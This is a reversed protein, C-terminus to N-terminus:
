GTISAINIRANPAALTGRFVREVVALSTGLYGIFLRPFGGASDLIAGRYTFADKVWIVIPGSSANLWLKADPELFFENLFYVGSSLFVQANSYAHIKNYYGPAATQSQGPGPEITGITAAPWDVEFAL